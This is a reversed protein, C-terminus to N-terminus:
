FSFKILVFIVITKVVFSRTVTQESVQIFLSSANVVGSYQNPDPDESDSPEIMAIIGGSCKANM